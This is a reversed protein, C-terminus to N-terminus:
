ERPQLGGEADARIARRERGTTSNCVALSQAVLVAERQRRDRLEALLARQPAARQPVHAHVVAREGLQPASQCAIMGREELTAGLALMLALHGVLPAGCLSLRLASLNPPSM